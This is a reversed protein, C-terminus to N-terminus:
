DHDTPQDPKRRSRRRWALGLGALLGILALGVCWGLWGKSELLWSWLRESSPRESEPRYLYVTRHLVLRYPEDSAARELYLDKTLESLFLHERCLKTVYYPRHTLLDVLDKDTERYIEPLTLKGAFETEFDFGRIKMRHDALVYILVDIDNGVLATLRMPYIPQEADFSFWLPQVDGEFYASEGPIVRAAVFYWGGEKVYADLLPGGEEPFAYGHENLWELLAGPEDASLISVDYVGVQERSLLEVGAEKEIGKEVEGRVYVIEEHFEIEPRTRYNLLSFWLPSAAKVEPLSPLPVVWAASAAGEEATPTAPVVVPREGGTRSGSLLDVSLILDEHGREADYVIIAKQAPMAVDTKHPPFVGGDARVLPAAGAMLLTLIAGLGLLLGIRQNMDIGGM